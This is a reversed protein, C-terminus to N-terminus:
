DKKAVEEHLVEKLNFEIEDYGLISLITGVFGGGEMVVKMKIRGLNPTMWQTVESKEGESTEIDFVIRLADFEGAPFFLKEEAEIRGSTTVFISDEDEVKYTKWSWNDGIKLKAPLQLPPTPYSTEMSKSIFLFVDVHQDASVLYIGDERRELEQTYHFDDSENIDKYRNGNKEVRSLTEGFDSDLVLRTDESLLYDELNYVKDSAPATNTISKLPDQSFALIPIFLLAVGKTFAYRM